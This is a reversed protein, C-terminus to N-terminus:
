GGNGTQGKRSEENKPTPLITINSLKHCALYLLMNDTLTEEGQKIGYHKSAELRHWVHDSINEFYKKLM